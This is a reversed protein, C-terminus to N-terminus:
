GDPGGGVGTSPHRRFDDAVTDAGRTADRAGEAIEEIGVNAVETASALADEGEAMENMGGYAGALAADEMAAATEALEKTRKTQKTM